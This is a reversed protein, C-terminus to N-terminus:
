LSHHKYVKLQLVACTEERGKLREQLQLLQKESHSHSAAKLGLQEELDRIKEQHNKYTQDKCRAKNEFSVLTEELKRISEEKAKSEQRAKDLQCMADSACNPLHRINRRFCANRISSVLIKTKQLESTDVQRRAPALEVGRVRSAFNLSSLTEGVDHESPSIQVFM